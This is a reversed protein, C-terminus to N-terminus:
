TLTTAYCEPKHTFLDQQHARLRTTSTDASSPRIFIDTAIPQPLHETPTIGTLRNLLAIYDSEIAIAAQYASVRFYVRIPIFWLVSQGNTYM